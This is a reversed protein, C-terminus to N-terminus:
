AAERELEPTAIEVAEAAVAEVPAEPTVIV